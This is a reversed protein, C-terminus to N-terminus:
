ERSAPPSRRFQTAARAIKHRQRIARRARAVTPSHIGQMKEFFIAADRIKEQM